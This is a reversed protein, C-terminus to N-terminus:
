LVPLKDQALPSIQAPNTLGGVEKKEQWDTSTSGIETMLPPNIKGSTYIQDTMDGQDNRAHLTASAVSSDTWGWGVPGQCGTGVRGWGAPHGLGASCAAWPINRLRLYWTNYRKGLIPISFLCLEFNKFSLSNLIAIKINVCVKWNLDTQKSILCCTIFDTIRTFLINKRYYTFVLNRIMSCPINKLRPIAKRDFVWYRLSVSVSFNKTFKSFYLCFKM